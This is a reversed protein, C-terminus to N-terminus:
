RGPRGLSAEGHSLVYFSTSPKEDTFIFDTVLYGASFLRRFLTRTHARWELGLESSHSKVAQIDSPIEVLVLPQLGGKGESEVIRMQEVGPSPHGNSGEQAPNIVEVGAELFQSLNLRQRPQKGLRKTVRASNVWMEVQFRDTPMGLNLEDRLEGYLREHYTSCIAGLKTINFFANKSQLPDYTWTILPIKQRRVLQWQARKLLYGVGRDRYAPVVGLMHSYHKLQQEGDVSEFGPMGFAFGVMEDEDYAGLVIGGNHVAGIFIHLPVIESQAGPWVQAQLQEIPAMEDATELLRVNM